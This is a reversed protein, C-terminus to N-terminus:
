YMKKKKIIKKNESIKDNQELNQQNQINSKFDEIQENNKINKLSKEDEM